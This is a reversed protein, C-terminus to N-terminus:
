GAVPLGRRRPLVDETSYAGALRDSFESLVEYPSAREGYVLRNAFRQARLRMPQFAVAVIAAAVAALVVGSEGQSGVAAGVGVVIAGYVATVFAALLGFVVTRKIVVEIGLLQHKLISVAFAIPIGIVLGGFLVSVGIGHGHGRDVPRRSWSARPDRRLGRRVPRHVRTDTTLCDHRFISSSVHRDVRPRLCEAPM